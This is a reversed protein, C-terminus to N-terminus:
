ANIPHKIGEIITANITIDRGRIFFFPFLPSLLPSHMILSHITFPFLLLLSNLLFLLHFLFHEHNYRARKSHCGHNTGLTRRGIIRKKGSLFTGARTLNRSQIQLHSACWPSHGYVLFKHVVLGMNAVQLCQFTLSVHM